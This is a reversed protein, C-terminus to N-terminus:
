GIGTSSKREGINHSNKLKTIYDARAKLRLQMSNNVM